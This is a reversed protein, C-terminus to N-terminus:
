MGTRRYKWHSLLIAAMKPSAKTWEGFAAGASM